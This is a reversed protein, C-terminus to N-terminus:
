QEDPFLANSRKRMQESLVQRVLDCVEYISEDSIQYLMETGRRQCNVIGASRLIALQRSVMSQGFGTQKMIEGVIVPHERISYLIQLRVDNGLAKYFNAQIDFISRDMCGGLSRPKEPYVVIIEAQNVDLTREVRRIFTNYGRNQASKTRQM